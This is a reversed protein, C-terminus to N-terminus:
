SVGRTWIMDRLHGRKSRCVRRCVGSCSSLIQGVNLGPLRLLDILENRYKRKLKFNGHSHRITQQPDIVACNPPLHSRSRAIEISVFWLTSLSWLCRPPSHRTTLMSFGHSRAAHDSGGRRVVGPPQSPGAQRPRKALAPMLACLWRADLAIAATTSTRKPKGDCLAAYIGFTQFAM